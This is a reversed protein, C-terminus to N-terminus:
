INSGLWSRHRWVWAVIIISLAFTLLNIVIEIIPGSACAAYGPAWLRAAAM